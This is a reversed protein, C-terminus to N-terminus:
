LVEDVHFGPFPHANALARQHLGDLDVVYASCLVFSSLHRVVTSESDDVIFFFIQLVEIECVQPLISYDESIREHRAEIWFYIPSFSAEAFSPHDDLARHEVGLDSPSWNALVLGFVVLPGSFPSAM